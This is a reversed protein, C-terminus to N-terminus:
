KMWIIDTTYNINEYFLKHILYYYINDNYLKFLFKM